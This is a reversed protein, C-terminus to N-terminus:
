KEVTALLESDLSLKLTMFNSNLEGILLGEFYLAYKARCDEAQELLYDLARKCLIKRSDSPLPMLNRKVGLARLMKANSPCIASSYRSSNHENTLISILSAEFKPKKAAVEPKPITLVNCVSIKLDETDTSNNSASSSCDSPCRAFTKNLFGRKYGGGSRTTCDKSPSTPADDGSSDKHHKRNKALTCLKDDNLGKSTPDSSTTGASNCDLPSSISDSSQHLHPEDQGSDDTDEELEKDERAGKIFHSLGKMNFFGIKFVGGSGAKHKSENAATSEPPKCKQNMLQVYCM